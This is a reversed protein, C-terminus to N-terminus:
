CTNAGDPPFFFFRFPSRFGSMHTLIWSTGGLEWTGSFYARFHSTFEGVGFHYWQNQGLLWTLGVAAFQSKQQEIRSVDLQIGYGLMILSCGTQVAEVTCAITGVKPCSM